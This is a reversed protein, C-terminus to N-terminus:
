PNVAKTSSAGLAVQRNLGRFMALLLRALRARTIRFGCPITPVRLAQHAAKGEADRFTARLALTRADYDALGNVVHDLAQSPLAGVTVVFPGYASVM